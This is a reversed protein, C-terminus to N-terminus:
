RLRWEGRGAAGRPRRPGPRGGQRRAVLRRREPPREHAHHGHLDHREDEEPQELQAVRRSGRTLCGTICQISQAITTPESAYTIASPMRRARPVFSISPYKRAFRLRGQHATPSETIAVWSEATVIIPVVPCPAVSPIRKM